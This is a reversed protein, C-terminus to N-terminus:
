GTINPLLPYLLLERGHSDDGEVAGLTAYAFGGGCHVGSIEGAAGVDACQKPIEVWLPSSIASLTYTGITGVQNDRLLQFWNRSNTFSLFSPLLFSRGNKEMTSRRLFRCRSMKHWASSTKPWGTGAATGYALATSRM